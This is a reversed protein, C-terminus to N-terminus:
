KVRTPKGGSRESDSRGRNIAPLPRGLVEETVGRANANYAWVLFQELLRRNEAELRQNEAELRAIRELATQLEPSTVRPVPAGGDGRLAEKRLRFADSIRVHKHLAQRTYRVRFRREVEDILAEWTLPDVWGDLLSTIAAIDRDNLNRARAM